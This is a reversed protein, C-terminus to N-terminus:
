VLAIDSSYLRDFKTITVKISFRIACNLKKLYRVNFINAENCVPVLIEKFVPFPIRFRKRFLKGNTSSCDMTSVASILLGWPSEWYNIRETAM